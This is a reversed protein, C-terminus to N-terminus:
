STDRKEYFFHQQQDRLFVLHSIHFCTTIVSFNLDKMVCLSYENLRIVQVTTGAINHIMKKWAFCVWFLVCATSFTRSRSKVIILWTMHSANVPNGGFLRWKVSVRLIAFMMTNIIVRLSWVSLISLRLLLSDIRSSSSSM